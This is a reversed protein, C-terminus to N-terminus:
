GGAAADNGGGVGSLPWPFRQGTCPKHGFFVPFGGHGFRNGELENQAQAMTYAATIQHGAMKLNFALTQNLVIDDEVILIKTM